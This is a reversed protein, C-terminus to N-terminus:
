KPEAYRAETTERAAKVLRTLAEDYNRQARIRDQTPGEKPVPYRRRAEDKAVAVARAVAADRAEKLKLRSEEHAAEAQRKQTQALDLMADRQPDRVEPPAYKRVVVATITGFKATRYVEFDGDLGVEQGTARTATELGSVAFTKGTSVDGQKVPSVLLMGEEVQLIECVVNIRGRDGVNLRALDLDPLSKPPPPTLREVAKTALQLANLTAVYRKVEPPPEAPAAVTPINGSTGRPLNIAGYDPASKTDTTAPPKPENATTAEVAPGDAATEVAPAGVKRGKCGSIVAVCVATCALLILILGRSM